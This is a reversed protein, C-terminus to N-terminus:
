ESEAQSSCTQILGPLIGRGLTTASLVIIQCLRQARIINRGPPIVFISKQDLNTARRIGAVRDDIEGEYGGDGEESILVTLFRTKFGSESWEKKLSNLEIKLQNDRLSNMNPDLSLPFFNIVAAPVLEQHKTVWLPTLLGDPFTPSSPTLPSIPSHLVFPTTSSAGTDSDTTSSRPSSISPPDAKLPPLQYSRGTSKIRYAIHPAASNGNSGLGARWPLDSGDDELLVRRLEEAVAGSLLPFDSFIKHGREHLLPYEVSSNSGDESDSEFGSLLVLPLNHKVYDEPYADM